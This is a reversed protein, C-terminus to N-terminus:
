RWARLTGSDDLLLLTQGAIVPAVNFASGADQERLVKGNAPDVELLVGNSGVMLLRGGGMVPGRWVIPGERDDPDDYQALQTVWVVRGDERSLGVLEQRTSILFVRSGVVAPTNLSGVEQEWARLGRRVDIALTRGSFASVIVRDGDIVPLGRIDSLGALVTAKRLAALSDQWLVQGNERRLAFVEGSSFPVIVTGVSAAPAAAGLLGTTEVIGAYSWLEEGSDADFALIQNDITTVFVAGDAVAPAARAPAPLAGRWVMGGNAIDLALVETFGATAYLRGNAVALGGGLGPDVEEPPVLSVRWRREGKALDLTSVRGASDLAYVVGDAVVPPALVRLDRSVGEGISTAWVQKLPTGLALHGPSHSSGGGAQAWDPNEAAAPLQYGADLLDQDPRLAADLQLISIRTGPLPPTKDKGFFDGGCGVLLAGGLSAVLLVRQWAQMM